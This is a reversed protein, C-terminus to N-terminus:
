VIVKIERIKKIIKVNHIKCLDELYEFTGRPLKLYKDDEKSCDIIMPINYVSMRMAQKKYFEPNAFTALRKFVNKVEASLNEKDICIM